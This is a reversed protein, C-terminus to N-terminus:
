RASPGFLARVAGRTVGVGVLILTAGLLDLPTFREGAWVAGAALAVVPLLYGVISFYVPGATSIVYVRIMIAVGTAGVGLAALAAWASTSLPEIPATAWAFPTLLMMATLLQVLTAGVPETEPMARISIAGVALALAALLCGLQAVADGSRLNSLSEPGFLAAVGIAGIAVGAIKERSLRENLDLTSSLAHALPLVILPVAAVYVGVVGSPLRQAAWAFLAFPIAVSVVGIWVCWPLVARRMPPRRRWLLAVLLVAAAGIWARAGAVFAASAEAGAIRMWLFAHGWILVAVAVALRISLDPARRM